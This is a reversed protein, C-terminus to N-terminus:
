CCGGENEVTLDYEEGKTERPHRFRNPRSDFPKASAAPVAEFPEIGIMDNAYPGNENTLNAYTQSGVAMRSGRVYTHGHEDIVKQWPGRYVVAQNQELENGAPLKWACLTLSRFEVGDIVHWPEEQRELIELGGFGAFQFMDLFTDERFAGSICGSWLEPDALIAATPDEDCVIDSIM